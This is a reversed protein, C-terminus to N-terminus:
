QLRDLRRRAMDSRTGKPHAALFADYATKADALNGAKEQAEAVGYMADGYRPSRELSQTFFKLADAFMRMDIYCWGLNAFPEPSRPKKIAAAQFLKAAKGPKGGELLKYGRLMLGDFDDGADLVEPALQVKNVLNPAASPLSLRPTTVGAPPQAADTPPATPLAAASIGLTGLLARAPAHQENQALIQELVRRGEDARGATIWTRAELFRVRPLDRSSLPLAALRLALADLPEAVLGGLTARLFAVEPRGAARDAVKDLYRRATATEGAVRYFDAWALDVDVSTPSLERAAALWEEASALGPRADGGLLQRYEARTTAVRARGILARTALAPSSPQTGLADLVFKCEEASKDFGLETDNGYSRDATELHSALDSATPAPIDVRREASTRRPGETTEARDYAMYAVAFLVATVGTGIMFGRATNGREAEAASPVLDYMGSDARLRPVESSPTRLSQLYPSSENPPSIHIARQSTSTPMPPSPLGPFSGTATLPQAPSPAPGELRFEGTDLLDDRTRPPPPPPATLPPRLPAPSTPRMPSFSSTPADTSVRSLGTPPRGAEGEIVLFFSSLEVISGLPKWSEGTRSIEDDRTVKRDLIWRQLTTLDKFELQEGTREKRIIWPRASSERRVVPSERPQVIPSTVLPQAVAPVMARQTLVPPSRMVRFLFGCHTCKVTIGAETVKADDFEYETGCQECRVDM